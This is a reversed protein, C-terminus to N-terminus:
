RDVPIEFEKGIFPPQFPNGMWGKSSQKFSGSLPMVVVKMATFALTDKLKGATSQLFFAYSGIPKNNFVM